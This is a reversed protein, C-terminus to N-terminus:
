NSLFWAFLFIAGCTALVACLIVKSMRKIMGSFENEGLFGKITDCNYEKAISKMGSLLVLGGIVAIGIIAMLTGPAADFLFAGWLLSAAGWITAGCIAVLEQLSKIAISKPRFQHGCQRCVYMSQHTTNVKPGAGCLGCLLGFPGTLLFGLCGLGASYNSGKSTINQQVQIECDHSGCKPCVVEEFKAPNSRDATRAAPQPSPAEQPPYSTSSPPTSKIPETVKTGCDPCFQSGASLERGCKPCYM